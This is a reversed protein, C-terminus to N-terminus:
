KLFLGPNLWRLIEQSLKQLDQSLSDKLWQGIADWPTFVNGAQWQIEQGLPTLHNGSLRRFAIMEAFRDCLIPNLTLTQDITDNNFKILLNRRVAYHDRILTQTEEPSPSFEINFDLNLDSKFDLQEQVSKQISKFVKDLEFQSLQEVLPIAEKVPYNNFSLLINGSREVDYLSGILLHLKSGMSHGLGYIPLYGSGLLGRNQLRELINEFRNLVSRAIATHDLTNIFPTAVIIYGEKALTELLWRYTVSPATGVFAGGLFHIVAIPQPPILVWSGSFEQWQM